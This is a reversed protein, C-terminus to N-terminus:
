MGCCRSGWEEVDGPARHGLNTGQHQASVAAGAKILLDVDQIGGTIVASHLLTDGTMGKSNVDTLESFMFELTGRYRKMLESLEETVVLSKATPGM